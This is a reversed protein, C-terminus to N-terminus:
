SIFSTFLGYGTRIEPVPKLWLLSPAGRIRVGCGRIGSTLAALRTSGAEAKRGLQCPRARLFHFSLAAVALVAHIDQLKRTNHSTM